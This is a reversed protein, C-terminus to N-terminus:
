KVIKLLKMIKKLENISKWFGKFIIGSDKTITLNFEINDLIYYLKYDKLEFYYGNIEELLLKWDLSEIDEKDLYKTRHHKHIYDKGGHEWDSYFINLMDQDCIQKEFKNIQYENKYEYEYGIHLDEIEPTYYKNEMICLYLNTKIFGFKKVIILM